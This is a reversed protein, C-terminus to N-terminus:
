LFVSVMTQQRHNKQHNTTENLKSTYGESHIAKGEWM